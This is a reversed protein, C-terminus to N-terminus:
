DKKITDLYHINGVIRKLGMGVVLPSEKALKQDMDYSGDPKVNYSEGPEEGRPQLGHGGTM